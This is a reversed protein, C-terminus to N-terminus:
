GHEGVDTSPLAVGPDGLIVLSRRDLFSLRARLADDPEARGGLVDLRLDHHSAADAGARGHFKEFAWGVPKGLMLEDYLAAILDSTTAHRSPGHRITWDFTPEVHGIFARLPKSAGLLATPFSAVVDGLGALDTVMTDLDSGQEFVGEFSTRASTGAGCCAHAYWIAGDPQWSGLVGSPDVECEDADVLWGLRERDPAGVPGTSGHSTTVVMGTGDTLASTLAGGNAADGNVYTVDIDADASYKQNVEDAIVRRMLHSMDGPAHDTAWVVTKARAPVLRDPSWDTLLATVYRDLAEGILPLRGVYLRPDLNLSYQLRWPLKELEGWLMLFSPIAGEVVGRPTGGIPIPEPEAYGQYYRLLRDQRGPDWRLVPAEREAVLRRLPEPADKGAAKDSSSVADTDPLVLGWGVAAHRWDWPEPPHPALAVVRQEVAGVGWRHAGLGFVGTAPAGRWGNSLVTTM